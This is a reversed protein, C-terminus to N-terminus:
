IHTSKELYTELKELVKEEVEEEEAVRVDEEEEAFRWTALRPEIFFTKTGVKCEVPLNVIEELLYGEVIGDNNCLQRITYREGQTPWSTMHLEKFEAMEPKVSANVCRVKSGETIAM